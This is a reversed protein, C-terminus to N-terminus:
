SFCFINTAVVSNAGIEIFMIFRPPAFWRVVRFCAFVSRRIFGDEMRANSIKFDAIVVVCHPVVHKTASMFKLGRWVTGDVTIEPIFPYM